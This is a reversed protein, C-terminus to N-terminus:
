YVFSPVTHPFFYGNRLKLYQEPMQTSSSALSALVQLLVASNDFRFM